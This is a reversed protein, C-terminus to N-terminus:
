YLLYQKRIGEFEKVSERWFQKVTKIDENKEIFERTKLTGAIVDFPNRDFEYEYPPNKWRFNDKYLNYVLNILAYGTIVPQFIDRDVVHIFIGGCTEGQHKQFTPLFKTPRFIAGELELSKLADALENGDIFPAGVIEFPRTTGRGESIQTGELFVTAPFVVTTEVTPINPSPMVWPCDTEDYFYSRQWGDMKLVTLDCNIGFEKNFLLALEAVTLGHRMPIPFQGVFSEHGRELLDGEVELGGIPNPRDLVFMKKGFKACARMANAMTYIFTYVRTGVDQLDFVLADLNKLMEASPERSESYLSYVPLKTRKDFSHGTEIMNDQVDGRIGHQPGFLAGLNIDPHEFFLDAAHEYKHNVSAQNCILGVRLNKLFSTQEDLIKELGLKVPAKKQRVVIKNNAQPM